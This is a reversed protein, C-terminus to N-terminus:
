VLNKRVEMIAITGDKKGKVEVNNGRGIISRIKEMTIHDDETLSPSQLNKVEKQM